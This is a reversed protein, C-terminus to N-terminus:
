MSMRFSSVQEGLVDARVPPPNFCPILPHRRVWHYTAYYITRVKLSRRDGTLFNRQSGGPAFRFHTKRSPRHMCITSLSDREFSLILEPSIGICFSVEFVPVCHKEVSLGGQVPWADHRVSCSHQFSLLHHPQVIGVALGVICIKVSVLHICM